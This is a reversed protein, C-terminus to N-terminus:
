GTVVKTPSGSISRCCLTSSLCVMPNHQNSILSPEQSDPPRGRGRALNSIRAQLSRLNSPEDTRRPNM